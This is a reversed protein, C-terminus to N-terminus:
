NGYEIIVKTKFLVPHLKDNIIVGKKKLKNIYNITVQIGHNFKDSIEAKTQKTIPNSGTLELLVSLFVIEKPTLGNPNEKTIFLGSLSKVFGGPTKLKITQEM